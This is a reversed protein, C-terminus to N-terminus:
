YLIGELKHNSDGIVKFGVSCIGLFSVAAKFVVFSTNCDVFVLSMEVEEFLAM